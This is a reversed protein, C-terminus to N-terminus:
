DLREFVLDYGLLMKMSALCESKPSVYMNEVYLSCICNHTM